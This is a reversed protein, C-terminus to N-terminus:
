VFSVQDSRTDKMLFNKNENVQSLVQMFIHRSKHTLSAILLPIYGVHLDFIMGALDSRQSLHQSYEQCINPVFFGNKIFCKGWVEFLENITPINVFLLCDCVCVTLGPVVEQLGCLYYNRAPISGAVRLAATLRKRCGHRRNTLNSLADNM